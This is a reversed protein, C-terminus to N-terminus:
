TRLWAGRSPSLCGSRTKLKVEVLWVGEVLAVTKVLTVTEVVVSWLARLGISFGGLFSCCGGIGAGEGL